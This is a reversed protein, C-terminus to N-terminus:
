RKFEVQTLSVCVTSTSEIVPKSLAPDSWRMSTPSFDDLPANAKPSTFRSLVLWGVQAQDSDCIAKKARQVAGYGVQNQEEESVTALDFSTRCGM